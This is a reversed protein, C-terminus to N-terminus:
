IARILKCNTTLEVFHHKSNNLYDSCENNSKNDIEERPNHAIDCVWDNVVNNSICPGNNLNVGADLKSYCISICRSIALQKNSNTKNTNTITSRTSILLIAVVILIIILIILIYINNKKFMKKFM